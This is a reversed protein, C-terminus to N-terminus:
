SSGGSLRGPAEGPRPGPAPGPVSRPIVPPASGPRSPAPLPPAPPPAAMFPRLRDRRGGRGGDGQLRRWLRRAHVPRAHVPRAAGRPGASPRVMPRAMSLALGAPGLGGLLACVARCLRPALCGQGARLAQGGERGAPGLGCLWVFVVLDTPGPREGRGGECPETYLGCLLGQVAPKGQALRNM